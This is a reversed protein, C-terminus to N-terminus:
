TNSSIYDLENVEASNLFDLFTTNDFICAQKVIPIFKMPGISVVTSEFYEDTMGTVADM